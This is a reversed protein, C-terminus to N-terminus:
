REAKPQTGRRGGGTPRAVDAGTEARVAGTSETAGGRPMGPPTPDQRAFFVAREQPCEFRHIPFTGYPRLM